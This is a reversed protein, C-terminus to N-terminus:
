EFVPNNVNSFFEIDNNREDRDQLASFIAREPIFFEQDVAELEEKDSIIEM